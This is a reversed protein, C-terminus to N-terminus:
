LESVSCARSVTLPSRVSLESMPSFIADANDRRDLKFSARGCSLRRNGVLMVAM